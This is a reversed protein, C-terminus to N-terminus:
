KAKGRCKHCDCDVASNIFAEISEESYGFLRGMARQYDNNGLREVGNELLDFYEVILEANKNLTFVVEGEPSEDSTYIKATVKNERSLRLAENYGAPNKAIELTALPKSGELILTIENNEHPAILNNM